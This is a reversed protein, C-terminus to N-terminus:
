LTFRRSNTKKHPNSRRSRDRPQPETLDKSNLRPNSCPVVELKARFEHWTKTRPRSM